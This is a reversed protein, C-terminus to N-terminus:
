DRYGTLLVMIEQLTNMVRSLSMASCCPGAQCAKSPSCFDRLCTVSVCKLGFLLRCLVFIMGTDAQHHTVDEAPM